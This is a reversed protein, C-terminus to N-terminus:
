WEIQPLPLCAHPTRFLRKVKYSIWVRLLGANAPGDFYADVLARAFQGKVPACLHFM